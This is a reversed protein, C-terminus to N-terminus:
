PITRALLEIWHIVPVDARSQLHVQCGINATAILTPKSQQLNHLKDRLLQQSLAPQLISYTGASGCCLHSDQVPLLELGASTLIQEVLGSLGQGHQLTCPPHFVIQQSEPQHFRQQDEKNIFEAIDQTMASIKKAKDGYGPTDRLYDEYHKVMVGCGSATTIIAEAGAQIHPWWADINHKMFGLAEQSAGLHYSVAGCCGAQPTHIVSIGLTDLVKATAINTSPSLAPQVCGELLLVKRTHQHQPKTLLTKDRRPIKSKIQNPLLPRISQGLRLLPKFRDPHPLIWRLAQRTIRESWPRTVRQEILIRGLGLLKEYEVGSPCTTQCNLCTLCRDLHQQTKVSVENGELMQKILYIRGRPGDLEDGLLRYTPCTANCFGCHVCKRLIADAEKGQITNKIFDALQTQM